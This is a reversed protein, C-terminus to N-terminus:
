KCIIFSESLFVEPHIASRNLAGTKFVSTHSLTGHTRIGSWGGFKKYLVRNPGGQAPLLKGLDGNNTLKIAKLKLILSM